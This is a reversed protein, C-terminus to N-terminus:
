RAEEGSAELLQEFVTRQAKRLHQNFTQRTVGLQDALEDGTSTRPTEFYGGYYATRLAAFQRDTLAEEVVDRLLRPTYRLEQAVLEADPYVRRAAQIVTRPDVDGPLEGTLVPTGDDGYRLLSTVKGGLDDFVKSLTPGGVRVEVRSREATSSVLRVDLVASQREFVEVLARTAIGSATVYQLATGDALTVVEDVDIRVEGDAAGLFRAFSAESRFDLVRRQDSTLKDEREKLSTADEFGVVVYEVTGDGDLVPASNSSLWRETGDPLEIWHEFGYDPEGTELVRTVPHEEVPVPTGDDYTIHWERQRYTRSTIEDRELGLTKEARENAFSIDGSPDVVVISVPSAELIREIVSRDRTSPFSRDEGPREPSPGDADSPRWWARARAGIRKSGLEGREALADLTGYAARTTCGVRDAVEITALPERPDDLGDFVALVDEAAPQPAPNEM